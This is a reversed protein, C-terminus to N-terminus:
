KKEGQKKLINDYTDKAIFYYEAIENLSKEFKYYSATSLYFKIDNFFESVFMLNLNYQDLYSELWFLLVNFSCYDDVKLKDNLISYGVEANKNILDIIEKVSARYQDLIKFANLLDAYTTVNIKLKNKSNSDLTKLKNESNSDLNKNKNKNTRYMVDIFILTMVIILSISLYLM